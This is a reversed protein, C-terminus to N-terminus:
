PHGHEGAAKTSGGQGHGLYVERVRSNRRVEEPTGAAIIEGYNLVVISTALGFVVDMDHETLLLTMEHRQKLERLLKVAALRDGPAMGATPEDLMLLTPKLALALGLELRKKDGHSLLKAPLEARSALGIGGLVALVERRMAPSPAAKWWGPVPERYQAYRRELAVITNEQVTMDAFIRAM